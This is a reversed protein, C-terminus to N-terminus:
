RRAYVRYGGDKGIAIVDYPDKRPGEMGPSGMPMGPVTLGKIDPKDDLLHKVLGAPVHGEVFYDGVKATHCSQMRRPIGLERKIPAVNSMNEVDVSIGAKEMHEVWKGCCGCTPSKYVVIDAAVTTQAALLVLVALATALFGSWIMWQKNVNKQPSQKRKRSMM